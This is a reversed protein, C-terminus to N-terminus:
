WSQYYNHLKWSAASPLVGDTVQAGRVRVNIGLAANIILIRAKLRPSNMAFPRRVNPTVNKRYDRELSLKISAVACTQTSLRDSSLLKRKLSGDTNLALANRTLSTRIQIFGSRYSTTTAWSFFSRSSWDERREHDIGALSASAIATATAPARLLYPILFSSLFRPSGGRGGTLACFQSSDDM